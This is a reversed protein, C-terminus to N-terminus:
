FIAFVNAAAQNRPTVAFLDVLYPSLVSFPSCTLAALQLASTHAAVSHGFPDGSSLGAWAANMADSLWIIRGGPHV